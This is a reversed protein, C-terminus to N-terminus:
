QTKRRELVENYIAVYREYRGNDIIGAEVAAKVRCDPEAIHTCMNYRCKPLALFDPYYLMIEEPKIGELDLLSFGCTDVIMLGEEVSFIQVHRTTNKGREIRSMDGIEQKEGFLNLLSSKGVASQGAFCAVGSLKGKLEDFGEGTLASVAVIETLNGYVSQAYDLEAKTLDIKNYCLVPTIRYEAAFILLKDVLTWDTAPLPAVVIVLMDINAVPPRVLENRRPMIKDIVYEGRIEALSVMDGVIIRDGLQLKGRAVCTYVKDGCLVKFRGGVGKIVRGEARKSGM